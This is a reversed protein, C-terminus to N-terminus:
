EHILRNQVEIDDSKKEQGADSSGQDMCGQGVIALQWAGIGRFDM